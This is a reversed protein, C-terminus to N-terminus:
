SLYSGPKTRTAGNMSSCYKESLLVLGGKLSGRTRLAMVLASAILTKGVGTDTGTVLLDRM